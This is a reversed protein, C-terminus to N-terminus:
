WLSGGEDGRSNRRCWCCRWRKSGHNRELLRKAHRRRPLMPQPRQVAARALALIALLALNPDRLM